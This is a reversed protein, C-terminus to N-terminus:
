LNDEEEKYLDEQDEQDELVEQARLGEQGELAEWFSADCLWGEPQESGPHSAKISHCEYQFKLRLRPFLLQCFPREALEM